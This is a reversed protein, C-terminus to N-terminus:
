LPDGEDAHRTLETSGFAAALEQKLPVAPVTLKVVFIIL